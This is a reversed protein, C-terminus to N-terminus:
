DINRVCASAVCWVPGSFGDFVQSQPATTLNMSKNPLASEYLVHLVHRFSFPSRPDAVSRNEALLLFGAMIYRCIVATVNPLCTDGGGM